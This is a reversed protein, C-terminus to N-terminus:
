LKVSKFLFCVSYNSILAYPDRSSNIEKYRSCEDEIEKILQQRAEEIKEQKGMRAITNFIELADFRAHESLESFEEENLYKGTGIKEDM